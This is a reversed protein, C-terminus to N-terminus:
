TFLRFDELYYIQDDLIFHHNCTEAVPDYAYVIEVWEAEEYSPGALVSDNIHYEIEYINIFIDGVLPTSIPRMTTM